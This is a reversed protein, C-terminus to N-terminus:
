RTAEDEEPFRTEQRMKGERAQEGEPLDGVEGGDQRVSRVFGVGTEAQPYQLHRVQQAENRERIELAPWCHYVMGDDELIEFNGGDGIGLLQGSIVENSGYATGDPNVGERDLTVIVQKGLFGEHHHKPRCLYEMLIKLETFQDEEWTGEMQRMFVTLADILYAREAATFALAQSQPITV